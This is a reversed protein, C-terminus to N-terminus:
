PKMWPCAARAPDGGIPGTEEPVLTMSYGSGTSRAECQQPATV